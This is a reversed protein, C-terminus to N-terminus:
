ATTRVESTLFFRNRKGHRALFSHLSLEYVFFRRHLIVKCRVRWLPYDDKRPLRYINDMTSAIAPHTALPNELTPPGAATGRAPRSDSSFRRELSALFDDWSGENGDQGAFSTWPTYEAQNDVPIEDDILDDVGKNSNAPLYHISQHRRTSDDEDEDDFDDVLAEVDLFQGVNM